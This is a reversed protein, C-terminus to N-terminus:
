FEALLLPGRPGTSEAAMWGAAVNKASLINLLQAHECCSLIKPFQPALKSRNRPSTKDPLTLAPRRISPHEGERM